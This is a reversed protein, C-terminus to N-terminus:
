DTMGKEYLVNGAVLKNSTVGSVYPYLSLITNKDDVTWVELPFDAEACIRVAEATANDVACDVFVENEGSEM